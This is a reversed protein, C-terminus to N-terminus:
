TGLAVRVLYVAYTYPFFHTITQLFEPLLAVPYTGGSGAIQLVLLVIAMSKGVDGFVSVVTYVVSMFVFSILLGFVVFWFPASIDLGLFFIDGLTVVLTQLIGVAAFTFLRGFYM